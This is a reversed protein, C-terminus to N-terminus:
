SSLRVEAMDGELMRPGMGILSAAASQRSRMAEEPTLHPEAPFNEPNFTRRFYKTEFLRAVVWVGLSVERLPTLRLVLPPVTAAIAFKLTISSPCCGALVENSEIKDTFAQYSSGPHTNKNTSSGAATAVPARSNSSSSFYGVGERSERTVIDVRALRAAPGEVSTPCPGRLPSELDSM